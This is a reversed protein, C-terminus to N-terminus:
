ISEKKIDINNKESIKMDTPRDTQQATTSGIDIENNAASETITVPKITGPLPMEVAAGDDALYVEQQCETGASSLYL